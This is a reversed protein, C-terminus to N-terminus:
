LFLSAFMPSKLIFEESQQQFLLGHSIIRAKWFLIKGTIFLGFFLVFVLTVISSWMNVFSIISDGNCLPTTFVSTLSRKM